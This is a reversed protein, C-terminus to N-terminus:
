APAIEVLAFGHADIVVALGDLLAQKPLKGLDQWDNWVTSFIRVAHEDQPPDSLSAATTL